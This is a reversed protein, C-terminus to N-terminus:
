PTSGGEDDGHIWATRHARQEPTVQPTDQLLFVHQERGVLKIKVTREGSRNAIRLKATSGERM